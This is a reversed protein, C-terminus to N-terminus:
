EGDFDEAVERMEEDISDRARICLDHLAADLGLHDLLEAMRRYDDSDSAEDLLKRVAPPIAAEAASHPLRGLLQRVRLTDRIRLATRLLPSVLAETIDTGLAALLLLAEDRTEFTQLAEGLVRVTAERDQRLPVLSRNLAGAAALAHSFPEWEPETNPM